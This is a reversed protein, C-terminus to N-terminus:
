IQAAYSLDSPTTIKINRPDSDVLKVGRGLLEILSVDDTVHIGHSTAQKIGEELLDRRMIQPTHIEWLTERPPTRKVLNQENAEKITYTVPSALTAAGHSKAEQFLRIVDEPDFFPRAADHTCVYTASSPIQMANILSQMRTKGPPAFQSDKPFYSRYKLDCVIVLEHAFPLKQLLTLSFNVLPKGQFELYQKPIPSGMRSGTGGSLLIILVTEM